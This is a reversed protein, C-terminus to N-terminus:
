VESVRGAELAKEIKEQEELAEKKQYVEKKPHNRKRRAIKKLSWM